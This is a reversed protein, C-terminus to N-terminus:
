FGFSVTNRKMRKPLPFQSMISMLEQANPKKKFQSLQYIIIERYNKSPIYQLFDLLNQEFFLNQWKISM